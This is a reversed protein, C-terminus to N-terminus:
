KIPEKTALGSKRPYKKPTGSVKKIKILSRSIDSDPLNFKVEDEIKGGLVFVAKKSELLEEDVKGSKYPIFYGNQNVYPLCYESLSSLNAVARSVCVDYSERKMSPKAFDEARGHITEVGKLGLQTVVENLFKIRKQLSDLLTVKLHPYAIKLPIGPFGAGTGIDILTNVGNVDIAKCLALSDVFHKQVVEEYETIGTLNMFSNWEVLIEHYKIFQQIQTDNLEVGISAASSKLLEEKSLQIRKRQLM